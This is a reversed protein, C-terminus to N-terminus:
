RLSARIFCAFVERTVGRVIHGPDLDHRGCRRLRGIRRAGADHVVFVVLDRIWNGSFGIYCGRRVVEPCTNPPAQTNGNDLTINWIANHSM